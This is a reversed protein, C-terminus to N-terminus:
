NGWGLLNARSCPDGHARLPLPDVWLLPPLAVRSPFAWPNKKSVVSTELFSGFATGMSGTIADACLRFLTILCLSLWGWKLERDGDLVRAWPHSGQKTDLGVM